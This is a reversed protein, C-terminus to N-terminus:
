MVLTAACASATFLLLTGISIKTLLGRLSSLYPVTLQKISFGFPTACDFCAGHLMIVRLESLRYLTETKASATPVHFTLFQETLAADPEEHEGEAIVLLMIFPSM